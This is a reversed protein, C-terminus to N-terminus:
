ECGEEEESWRSLIPGYSDTRRDRFFPWILREREIRSPDLVAQLIEEDEGAEAILDGMPDSVFSRGWFTTGTEKGVRNVAAVYCGNAIAHSRQILQWAQHFRAKETEGEGEITGIATPYVLLDAGKMATIRAAEPFWQDWCILTGIRGFATKFVQYGKDGPSFYYKEHFGPDEPIHMKRYRGLLRGDRDIVVLTNYYIGAAAREFFPAVIVVGLDTSLRSLRRTLPGPIPEALSFYDPNVKKCFYPTQFLEQLLIIQSGQHAARGILVETHDLNLAPDNKCATQILSLNM